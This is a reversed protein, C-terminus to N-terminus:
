YINSYGHVHMSVFAMDKGIHRLLQGLLLCMFGNAWDSGDLYVLQTFSKSAIGESALKDLIARFKTTEQVKELAGVDKSLFEYDYDDPLKSLDEGVVTIRVSTNPKNGRAATYAYNPTYACFTWGLDYNVGAPLKSERYQKIYKQSATLSDVNEVPEM